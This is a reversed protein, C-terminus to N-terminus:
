ATLAIISQGHNTKKKKINKKKKTLYRITITSILSKYITM